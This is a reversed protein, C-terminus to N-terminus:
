PLPKLAQAAYFANVIGTGVSSPTGYTMPLATGILLQRMQAPTLSPDLQKMLAAIAAVHPAAASTGFFRGPAQEFFFTTHVGDTATLDPKTFVQPKALPASPKNTGYTPAFLYYNDPGRSSYDEPTGDDRWYTAATTIADPAANHGSTEYLGITDKGRAVLHEAGTYFSNVIIDRLRPTGKGALRAIVVDVDQDTTGDNEYALVQAPEQLKLTDDTSKALIKGTKHDLLYLGFNDKVGGWSEAWQLSPELFGGGAPLTYGDTVDVGKGPDYDHCVLKKGVAAPCPAPRFAPAEYFGVDHGDIIANNNGASSSYSVGHRTVYEVANAIPGSQWYPEDSYSVDDVIVKAHYISYLKKINKAFAYEGDFATAFALRAGPALDHVIQLMARGEDTQDGAAYDKLVEVPKTRGCPNGKGPLDGSKIDQKAHTLATTTTDYSDSLVGVTIGSGDVKYASRTLAANLVADGESIVSGCTVVPAKAKAAAASKDPPTVTPTLAEQVVRVGSVKAIRAMSGAPASVTVVGYDASVDVIGAGASRLRAVTAASASTVHVYALLNHSSNRLLSGAGKAPLSVAKAQAAPSAKAMKSSSLVKLRASLAGSTPAASAAPM